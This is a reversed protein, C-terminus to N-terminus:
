YELASLALKVKGGGGRGRLTPPFAKILGKGAKERVLSDEM